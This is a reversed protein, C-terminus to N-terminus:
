GAPKGVARLDGADVDSSQGLGAGAPQELLARLPQGVHGHAEDGSAPCERDRWARHPDFDVPAGRDRGGCPLTAAEAHHAAVAPELELEERLIESRRNMGVARREVVLEPQEAVGDVRRMALRREDPAPQVDRDRRLLGAADEVTGGCAVQENLRERRERARGDRQGNAHVRRLHGDGRQGRSLTAGRPDDGARHREDGALRTQGQGAPLERLQEIEARHPDDPRSRIREERTELARDVARRLIRREGDRVARDADDRRLGADREVDRTGHAGHKGRGLTRDVPDRREDEGVLLRRARGGVRARHPDGPRHAAVLGEVAALRVADVVDLEDRMEDVVLQDRRARREREVARGTLARRLLAEELRRHDHVALELGAESAADALHRRGDEVGGVLRAQPDGRSRVVRQVDRVIRQAAVRRDVVGVDVQLEHVVGPVPQQQAGPDARGREGDGEVARRLM